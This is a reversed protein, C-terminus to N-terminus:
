VGDDSVLVAGDTQHHQIMAIDVLDSKHSSM